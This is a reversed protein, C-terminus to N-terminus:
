QEIIIQQLAARIEEETNCDIILNIIDPEFSAPANLEKSAQNVTKQIPDDDLEAPPTNRWAEIIRDIQQKSLQQKM